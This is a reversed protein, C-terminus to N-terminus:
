AAVAARFLDALTPRELSFHTVTGAARAADLVAEPRAGPQLRVLVGGPSTGAVEAGPVGAVWGGDGDDEVRVRVQEGGDRAQERLATVAGAAVLRGKNIIAVDECLREVLELQHSSFVVPVGTDARERLVGSMVDVGVPDLGSFPEDLVLVEPDHVLAVGLQVRQQNGLSLTEVRDATRSELGLREIWRDAASGAAGAEMGHLQAFYVLQDRVRMKPYLGREEPMYGFRSRTAADIPAGNWRM